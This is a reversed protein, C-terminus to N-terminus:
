RRERGTDDDKPLDIAKTYLYVVFISILWGVYLYLFLLPIEFLTASKNFITIFPYNMAIIGVIFFIVWSEKLRLRTLLLRKLDTRM